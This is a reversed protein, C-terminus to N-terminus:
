PSIFNTCLNEVTSEQSRLCELKWSVDGGFPFVYKKIANTKVIQSYLTDQFSIDCSM